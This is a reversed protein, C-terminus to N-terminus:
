PIFYFPSPLKVPREARPSGDLDSLQDGVNLILTNGQAVIKSREGSKYDVALGEWKLYGAAKLNEAHGEAQRGPLRGVAAVRADQWSLRNAASTCTLRQLSVM